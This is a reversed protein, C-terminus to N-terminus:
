QPFVTHLNRLFVLCLVVIHGLLEVEPYIDSFFGFISIQFSVHVGIYGAANNVIALILFCGLHGDVSLHIFIHYM